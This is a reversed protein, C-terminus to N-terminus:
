SQSKDRASALFLASTSFKSSPDLAHISVGARRQPFLLLPAPTLHANRYESYCLAPVSALKRRDVPGDLERLNISNSVAKSSSSARRVLYFPNTSSDLGHSQGEVM